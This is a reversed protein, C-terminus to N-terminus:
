RIWLFRTKSFPVLIPLEVFNSFCLFSLFPFFFFFMVCMIIIIITVPICTSYSYMLWLCVFKPKGEAHGIPFLVHRM